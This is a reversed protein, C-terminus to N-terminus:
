RLTIFQILNCSTDVFLFGNRITEGGCLVKVVEQAQLSAVLAPTATPTGELLEVGHDEESVYLSRLGPDGPYITMVHGTNGGIAGHVLPIGLRECGEQLVLRSSVTDLADVVVMAEGFVERFNDPTVFCQHCSVELDPNIEAIRERARLAKPRGIDCERCLVQRNLNNEEFVDGDALVLRGVGYRALLESVCGGLGGLGCVGVCSRLLRLQGEMGLTGINRQYRAPVIGLELARMEIQLSPLRFRAALERTRQLQLVSLAEVRVAAATIAERVELEM